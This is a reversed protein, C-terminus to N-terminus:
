PSNWIFGSGCNLRAHLEELNINDTCWRQQDFNLAKSTKSFGNSVGEAELIEATSYGLEEPEYAVYQSSVVEVNEAEPSPSNLLLIGAISVAIIIPM